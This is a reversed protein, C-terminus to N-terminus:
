FRQVRGFRREAERIMEIETTTIEPEIVDDLYRSLVLMLSPAYDCHRGDSTSPLVITSGSTTTRRKVRALDSKLLEVKPIQVKGDLFMTRVSLYRQTRDRDALNVQQTLLGNDSAIEALADGMYQDTDICSIRYHKCIDAIQRMVGRPSLPETPSGRWEKAYVVKRKNGERTGICLTWGNGRTAPDMAAHYTANPNRESLDNPLTASAEIVDHPFINEEPTTFEALVDTRFVQPDKKADEVREPTWYVPNMDPAPARIVVMNKSPKGWYTTVLNYAPGFPAWPSGIHLLQCGELLRLLVADRSDDWNVVAEDGGVMRPFEDFIVGASWRAVLSSGARAGAVVRIEVTRGSPHLVHIFGNGPRGIIAGRLLPSAQGRGVVHSFVVNALDKTLSVISVRPIEGPGLHDIKCQLAMHWGACAALLSKGGRIGALIAVEKPKGKAVTAGITRQTLPSAECGKGDIVRCIERQLPSATSVGFGLESTFLEELSITALRAQLRQRLTLYYSSDDM